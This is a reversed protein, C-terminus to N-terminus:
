GSTSIAARDLEDYQRTFGLQHQYEIITHLVKLKQIIKDELGKHFKSKKVENLANEYNVVAEEFHGNNEDKLGEVFLTVPLNKKRLFISIIIFLILITIMIFPLLQYITM